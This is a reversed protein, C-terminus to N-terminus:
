VYSKSLDFDYLPAFIKVVDYKASIYNRMEQIALNESEERIFTENSIIDLLNKELIQKKYDIERLFRM